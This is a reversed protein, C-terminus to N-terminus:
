KKILRISQIVKGNATICAFYIGAMIEKGKECRGNWKLKYKGPSYIKNIISKIHKGNIDFVSLDISSKEIVSFEISLNESFPNPYYAISINQNNQEIIAVPDDQRM